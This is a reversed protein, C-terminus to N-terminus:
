HIMIYERGQCVYRACNCDWNWFNHTALHM